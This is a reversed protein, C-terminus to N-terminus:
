NWFMEMEGWFLFGMGMQMVRGGRWEWDRPVVWRSETWHPHAQEPCKIEISGYLIHDKTVEKWKASHKRPGKIYYCADTCWEMKHSFLIGNSPIDTQKDVWWSIWEGMRTTEVKQSNHMIGSHVDTYLNKHPYLNEKRRTSCASTSNGSWITVRHKVKQPVKLNRWLPQGM